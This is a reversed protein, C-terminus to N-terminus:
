EAGDGGDQDAVIDLLGTVYKKVADYLQQHRLEIEAMIEARAGNKYEETQDEPLTAAAATAKIATRHKSAIVALVGVAKAIIAMSENIKGEAYGRVFDLLLAVGEEAGEVKFLPSQKLAESFKAQHKDIEGRVMTEIGATIRTLLEPDVQEPDAGAAVARADVLAVLTAALRDAAAGRLYLMRTRGHGEFRYTLLVGDAANLFASLHADAGRVGAAAAGVLKSLAECLGTVINKTMTNAFSDMMKKQMANPNRETKEKAPEYLNKWHAFPLFDGGEATVENIWKSQKAEQREARKEAVKEKGEAIKGKLKNLM